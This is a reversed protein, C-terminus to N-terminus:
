VVTHQATRAPRTYAWKERKEEVGSNQVDILGLLALCKSVKRKHNENKAGVCLGTNKNKKKPLSFDGDDEM